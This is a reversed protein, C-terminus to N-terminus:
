LGTTTLKLHQIFLGEIKASGLNVINNAKDRFEVKDISITGHTAPRTATGCNISGCTKEAVQTANSYDIYADNYALPNNPLRTLEMYFNGNADAKGLVVSQYHPIGLPLNMDLGYLYLGENADFLRNTTGNYIGNADNTNDLATSIRLGNNAKTSVAADYDTNFRLVARLGLTGNYTTSGANAGASSDDPTQFIDFTTGNISAGNWIAQLGLGNAGSLNLGTRATAGVIYGETSTNNKVLVDLSFGLRLNYADLADGTDAGALCNTGAGTSLGAVGLCYQPAEFRLFSRSVNTASAFTPRSESKVSLYFPNAGSGWSRISASSARTLTEDDRTISVNRMYLDARSPAVLAGAGDPDKTEGRPILNIYSTDLDEMVIKFGEPLFALGEGTTDSLEADSIAELAFSPTAVASIALALVHPIYRFQGSMTGEKWEHAYEYAIHSYESPLNPNTITCGADCGRVDYVDM